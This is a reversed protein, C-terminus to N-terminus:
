SGRFPVRERAYEFLQDFWLQDHRRLARRFDTWRERIARLANRYTPNTHGMLYRGRASVTWADLLPDARIVVSEGNVTVGSGVGDPIPMSPTTAPEVDVQAARAELLQRWYVFM